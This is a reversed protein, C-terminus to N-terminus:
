NRKIEARLPLQYARGVVQRGLAPHALRGVGVLGVGPRETGGEM